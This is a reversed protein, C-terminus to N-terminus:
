WTNKRHKLQRQGLELKGVETKLAKVDRKLSENETKLTEIDARLATLIDVTTEKARRSRM